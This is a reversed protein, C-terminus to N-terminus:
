GGGEPLATKAALGEVPLSREDRPPLPLRLPPGGSVVALLHLNNLQVYARSAVDEPPRGEGEGGGGGRESREAGRPPFQYARPIKNRTAFRRHQLKPPPAPRPPPFLPSSLVFFVILLGPSGPSLSVRRGKSNFEAGSAAVRQAPPVLRTHFRCKLTWEFSYFRRKVASAYDVVRHADRGNQFIWIKILV